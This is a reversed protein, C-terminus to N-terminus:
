KKQGTFTKSRQVYQKFLDSDAGGPENDAVHDWHSYFMTRLSQKEQPTALDFVRIFENASLRKTHRELPSLKGEGEELIGDYQHASLTGSKYAGALDKMTVTGAQYGTALQHYKQLRDAAEADNPGRSLHTRYLSYAMSEAKSEGAWRPAPLIALGSSAASGLSEGQNMRQILNTASFPLASQAEYKLVGTYTKPDTMADLNNAHVPHIQRDFYDANQYLDGIQHWIPALKNVGTQGPAHMFGYADHVYTKLYVREPSGDMGIKGTKPYLLDM